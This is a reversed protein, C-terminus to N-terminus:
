KEELDEKKEEKVAQTFGIFSFDIEHIYERMASVINTDKQLMEMFAEHNKESDTVYKVFLKSDKDKWYYRYCYVVNKM